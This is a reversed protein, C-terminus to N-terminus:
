KRWRQFDTFAGDQPLPDSRFDILCMPSQPNPGTSSRWRLPEPRPPPAPRPAPVTALDAMSSRLQDRENQLLAARQRSRRARMYHRMYSNRFEPKLPM